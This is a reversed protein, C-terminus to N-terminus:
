NLVDEELYFFRHNGIEIAFELSEHWSSCGRNPNYFYLIPKLVVVEGNDFVRSVAEEVEAWAEENEFKLELNWGDYGYKARVEKPRLNNKYMANAICQAVAMKGEISEGQAEGGVMACIYEREDETIEIAVTTNDVAVIDYVSDEIENELLSSEAEFNKNSISFSNILGLILFSFMMGLIVFKIEHKLNEM